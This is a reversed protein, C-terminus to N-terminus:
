SPLLSLQRPVQQILHHEVLRDEPVAERALAVHHAHHTFFLIQTIGALEGLAAFAARAREADFHILVDDLILPMPENRECYLTLSALRLALYLQDRAGDSLAEISVGRGHQDVCQLVPENKDEYAVDLKPYRGLTLRAFLEGARELLPGKNRDRYRRIERQLLEAALRARAYGLAHEKIRSLLEEADSAAVAANAAREIVALGSELSGIEHAAASHEESSSRVDDELEQLRARIADPTGHGSEAVLAGVDAGEALELLEREVEGQRASLERALQSEREAQELAGLENTGAARMLEALQARASDARQQAQGLADRDRAIDADLQDAQARDSQAREYRAVFTEAALALSLPALEPLHREVLEGVRATFAQADREMGDIRARLDAMGSAKEFLARVTEQVALAEEVKADHPLRLKAMLAAWQERWADLAQLAQARREVALARERRGRELLGSLKHLLASMQAPRGPEIALGQWVLTWDRALEDRQATHATRQAELRAREREIADGEALLRAHEAVRTAERRLRDAVEDARQLSQEVAQLASPEVQTGAQLGTRVRSWAGDREARIARLDQESPPTGQRELTGLAVQLREHRAELEATTQQQTQEAHELLEFRRSLEDVRATAPLTLESANPRARDALAPFAQLESQVQELADAAATLEREAAQLKELLGSHESTLKAIRAQAARDIRLREIEALPLPDGLDLDRLVQEAEHARRRLEAQRRPLDESAKVHNGLQNRLSRVTDANLAALSEPIVLLARRQEHTQLSRALQACQEEAALLASQARRRREAADDELLAVAGLRELQERLARQKALAPLVRLLRQLRSQEALLAGRQAQAALARARVRELEEQQARVQEAATAHARVDKRAAKYADIAQNLPAKGRPKWLADAEARLTTLADHIGPAGVGAQFLSEGLNGQGRRLQEGGDRLREHDLGFVTAFVSQPLGGLLRSMIAEDLPADYQDRLTNKTGKRRVLVHEVGQGDCLRGRVRLAEGGYLRADASQHEVGYLLALIARLTTSKGAENPGYIVHLASPRQSLDLRRGAIAGFATLELELLRM